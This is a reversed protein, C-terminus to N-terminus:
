IRKEKKKFLKHFPLQVIVVASFMMASGIWEDVTPIDRLVIMGTIVAFVSELSMLMSAVTPDTYKQGVIELTYAIGSSFIGAYLISPLASVLSKVSLSEFIVAPVASVVACILFQACALKINDVKQAYKSTAMIRVAFFLSCALVLLDSLAVGSEGKMCLMYLGGLALLVCPFVAPSIRKGSILSFIPVLLMYFATIFGAKGGSTGNAIGIQQLNSAVCLLLGCVLAARIFLRKDERTPATFDPSRKKRKDLIIIVPLLVACGVISRLTQFTFAGIYRMAVEQAIFTSGWFLATILLVINGYLKTSKM